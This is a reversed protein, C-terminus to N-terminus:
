NYLDYIVLRKKGNFGIRISDVCKIIFLIRDECDKELINLINEKDKKSFDQKVILDLEVVGNKLPVFQFEEVNYKGFLEYHLVTVNIVEGNKDTLFDAVRGEVQKIKKYHRGCPCIDLDWCGIDGTKYRILPMVKNTFGTAVIEGKDSNYIIQNEKTVIEVYGYFPEVHYSSCCECEGAIVARETHGYFSYCRTSLVKEIYDRVELTFSESVLLAAKFKHHISEKEIYKCLQHIASPYGYIFDPTYKEILECYIKCNENSMNRIDISLERRAGDWQWIKGQNMARFRKSRLVLRSSNWSYGVRKWLHLVYAWERMENSKDFYFTKAKGTSGSTQKKVLEKKKFEDSILNFEERSIIENTLFPLKKIDYISKFDNPVLNQEKMIRTYYPVHKYVYHMLNKFNKNLIEEYEEESVYEDQKELLNWTKRFEAGYRIKPPILYFILALSNLLWNPLHMYNERAFMIGKEFISM